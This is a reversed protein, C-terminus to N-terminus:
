YRKRRDAPFWEEGWPDEVSKRKPKATDASGEATSKAPVPASFAPASEARTEPVEKPKSEGEM